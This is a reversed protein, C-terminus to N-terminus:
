FDEVVGIFVPLNTDADVIAYLFPRNLIVTKREEVLMAGEGSMEVVTAAGAKTGLEDVRIHTKHLVRSICINLDGACSGMGSFDALLPDFALPMGMEQLANSLELSTENEFKPIGTDVITGNVDGITKLFIEGTLGDIYTDLSIGEKPLLAMFYYGEQYPKIFGTANDDELYRSEEAYLMSVTTESGDAGYFVADHIQDSHYPEQWEAEFAVANILYMIADKPIQDLIDRIEGDTEREVWRNIDSLTSEDFPAGYIEAGYDEASSQLFEERPTFVGKTHFWISNAVTLTEGEREALLRCLSMMGDKGQEPLIGAYLVDNMQALTEGEAGNRTMELAMLVSLPSVMVNSEASEASVRSERLLRIAFDAYAGAFDETVEWTKGEEEFREGKGGRDKLYQGTLNETSASLGSQMRYAAYAGSLCLVLGIGLLVMTRRKKM